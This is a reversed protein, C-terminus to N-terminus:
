SIFVYRCKNQEVIINGSHVHGHSPFGKEELFILAQLYFAVSTWLLPPISYLEFFIKRNILLFM